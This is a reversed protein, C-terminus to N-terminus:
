TTPAEPLSSADEPTTTITDVIQPEDQPDVSAIADTTAEQPPPIQIEVITTDEVPITDEIPALPESSAPLDPQLPPLLGLHQQIQRLITTQQNPQSRMEAMQQFLAAHTTSLTQLTAVLDHCESTSITISSESTTPSIPLVTHTMPPATSVAEPM